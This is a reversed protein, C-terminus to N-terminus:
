STLCTLESDTLFDKFVAVCKVKGEFVNSTVGSSLDLSTFTDAPLVNGSTDTGVKVGNVFLAFDDQKYRFAIKSFQTRDAVNFQIQCEFNGANRYRGLIRNSSPNYQISAYNSSDSAVSIGRNNNGDVLCATETYLVGETTNILSSNGSGSALDQNRVVSIGSTSILSTAFEQAELQAGSLLIDGDTGAIVVGMKTTTTTVALTVSVRQWDSSLTIAGTTTSPGATNNRIQINVTTSGASKVYVSFTFTSAPDTATVTYQKKLSNANDNWNPPSNTAASVRKINGIVGFPNIGTEVQQSAGTTASWGTSLDASNVELNTSQPELLWYGCSDGLYNIRPINSDVSAIIGSSNYRTAATARTFNFDGVSTNPKICLMESTNYGTPTLLISAKELLNSM